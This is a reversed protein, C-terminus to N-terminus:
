GRTLIPSQTSVTARVRTQKHPALYPNSAGGDPDGWLIEVENGDVAQDTDLLGVSTIGGLNATHGTIVTLGVLRGDKLVQDYLHGDMPLIMERAPENGGIESSSIVRAADESNWTFWAKTRRPNKAIKELAARGIFDHDFRVVRGYGMDWPNVYYDEIRESRFSGGIWAMWRSYKDEDLWERYPRMAETYIAPM